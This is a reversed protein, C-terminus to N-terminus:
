TNQNKDLMHSISKDQSQTFRPGDDVKYKGTFFIEQLQDPAVIPAPSAHM